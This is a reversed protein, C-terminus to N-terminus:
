VLYNRVKMLTALNVPYFLHVVVVVPRKFREMFNILLKRDEMSMDIWNTNYISNRVKQSELTIENGFFCPMLIQAVM